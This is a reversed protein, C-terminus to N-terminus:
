HNMALRSCFIKCGLSRQTVYTSRRRRDSEATTGTGEPLSGAVIEMKSLVAVGGFRPPPAPNLQHTWGCVRLIQLLRESTDSQYENLVIVDPHRSTLENAIADVRNGGGQQINWALIKM